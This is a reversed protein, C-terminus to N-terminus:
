AVDGPPSYGSDGGLQKFKVLVVAFVAAALVALVGGILFTYRYVQGISDLFWGLAPPVLMFGMASMIGAASAFQAFKARPFLRQGLSATATFYTGTLVGHAVFAISFAKEETAVFGGWIMTVAYLVLAALGIRLPHFRDAMWGLLYSLVLSFCYTIVLLEGYRDMNLGVSKAYFVSFTNVPLAMVGGMMMALFVWLYFPNAYCERLYAKVPAVFRAAFSGEGQERPPPPPYEGEKVRLCMVSFGVGFLLGVGLFIEKYHTEAYDILWFNFVIGAILSVARFLGYFRGIVEQPVVDNILGGFVAQAITQFIEFSSWFFSFVLLRCGVLGPSNEGLMGHLWEGVPATFALGAMSLAVIPAPILMYPIRRGWRGRHRDSRVSVIPGLILGIAAPLSGVLLGVIFDTAGFQKMVLQGVPLITREKMNWAFDGWLLWAFLVVLGPTTYVLTGARWLRRSSRPAAAEPAASSKPAHSDM